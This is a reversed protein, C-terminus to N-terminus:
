FAYRMGFRLTRPENQRSMRCNMVDCDVDESTFGPPDLGPVIAEYWYVIDKGDDDFVHLLEAYFTMRNVTYAGRLNVTTESGARHANDATLAYPGLYRLRLSAEWRDQVASIGIQGAHEVAGEVHRGDPNDVYRAK